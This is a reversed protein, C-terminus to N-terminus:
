IVLPYGGNKISEYLVPNHSFKYSLEINSPLFWPKRYIEKLGIWHYLTTGGCNYTPKYVGHISYIYRGYVM